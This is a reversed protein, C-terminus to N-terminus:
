TQRKELEMVRRELKELRQRMENRDSMLETLYRKMAEPLSLVSLNEDNGFPFGM